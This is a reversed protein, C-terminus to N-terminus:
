HSVGHQGFEPEFASIKEAIKRFVPAAVKGGQDNGSQPEGIVVLLALTPNEAPWFGVFSAVFNDEAYSGKQAVQATGTKGAVSIGPVKAARGSGQEVVSTMAERLRQATTETLVHNRTHKSAQYKLTENENQISEVLYPQYLRGGNAIAAIASLLQLPTVAIGQGIAINAPVVGLWQEPKHLIGKEEGPFQIGTPSGFGWFRLYDYGDQPKIRSGIQAMGVNSSKAIIERPSIKGHGRGFIESIWGDAVQIRGPCFFEEEWGVLGMELAIGLIVPKFTSGPEYIRGIANNRLAESNALTERQNANFFPWSVMGRLAGSTVDMCLVTGWRARERKIAERLEEALVHQIRSDITLLVKGPERLTQAAEPSLISAVKGSATKAILHNGPPSYLVSNYLLEIGALGKEDIDCYGLIHAADEGQPYVRKGERVEYLGPLDLSRITEVTEGTLKRAVWLFRGEHTQSLREITKEDFFSRLKAANEPEWELPDIFFSISPVSIALPVDRCDSIIGRKSSLTIYSWYQKSARAIAREDPFLHLSVLRCLLVFLTAHLLVWLFTSRRQRRTESAESLM